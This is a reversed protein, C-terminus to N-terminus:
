MCECRRTASIYVVILFYHEPFFVNQTTGEIQVPKTFVHGITERDYNKTIRSYMIFSGTYTYTAMCYEIWGTTINSNLIYQQMIKFGCRLCIQKRVLISLNFDYINMNINKHNLKFLGVYTKRTM